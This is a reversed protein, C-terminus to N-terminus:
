LSGSYAVYRCGGIGPKLASARFTLDYAKTFATSTAITLHDGLYFFKGSAPASEGVMLLRVKEPRYSRRLAEIDMALVRM